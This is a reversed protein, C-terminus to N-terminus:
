DGSMGQQEAYRKFDCMHKVSQKKFPGPLLWAMLRPVWQQFRFEQEATYRTRNEDVAELRNTVINVVGRTEYRSTWAHPLDSATVTEIMEMERKGARLVLRNRSGVRGAEGQLSEYHKLGKMWRYMDEPSHLLEAVQEVPLAIEVQTCYKMIASQYFFVFETIRPLFIFGKVLIM